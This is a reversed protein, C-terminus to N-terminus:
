VYVRFITYSEASDGILLFLIASSPHPYRSRAVTGFLDVQATVGIVTQAPTLRVASNGIESKLPGEVALSAFSGEGGDPPAGTPQVRSVGPQGKGRWQSSGQDAM